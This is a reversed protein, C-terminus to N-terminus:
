SHLVNQLIKTNLKGSITETVNVVYVLGVQDQLKELQGDDCNKQERQDDMQVRSSELDLIKGQLEKVKEQTDRLEAQSEIM